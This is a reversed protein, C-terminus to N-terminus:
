YWKAAMGIFAAGWVDGGTVHLKIDFVATAGMEEARTVLAQQAQEIAQELTHDLAGATVM